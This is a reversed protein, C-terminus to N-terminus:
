PIAALAVGFGAISVGQLASDLALVLRSATPMHLTWACFIWLVGVVAICGSSLMWTAAAHPSATLGIWIRTVASSLLFGCMLVLSLNHDLAGDAYLSFGAGIYFAGNLIWDVYLKSRGMRTIFLAIAAGGFLASGSGFLSPGSTIALAATLVLANLAVLLGGLLVLRLRDNTHCFRNRSRRRYPVFLDMVM